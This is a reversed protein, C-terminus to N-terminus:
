RQAASLSRMAAEIGGPAVSLGSEAMSELTMELAAVTSVVMLDDLDGLHGIRLCRGRLRGLGGGVTVNCRALLQQRIATDSAGDPLLMATVSDSRAAEERCLLELGWHNVAARVASAHRRHRRYVADLGEELLLDLATRLGVVLNTSPTYPFAGTGAAAIMPRWDWYGCPLRAAEKAALARDSLGLFTLGPPLMLGKQSAAVVVDAGWADQRVPMSALSSVADVLLLAPHSAADMAARVAAIDSTTGTSTENHVVLVARIARATDGALAAGLAAPDAPSRWDTAIVQVELGLRGALAAWSEAFFGTECILVRDGPSLTNTLVAEWGGTGSGPYMVVPGRTGFIQPLDALVSRAIGAFVEGRHDITPEGIAALVADPVNTPGPLQM